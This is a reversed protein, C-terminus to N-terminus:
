GFVPSLESWIARPTYDGNVLVPDRRADAIYLCGRKYMIPVDTWRFDTERELKDLLAFRGLKQIAKHGFAAHAYKQVCNRECSIVRHYIVNELDEVPVNFVRADFVALRGETDLMQNFKWTAMAAVVSVIKQVKGGFWPETGPNTESWGKLILTIEDSAVYAAECGQVQQLLFRATQMMAVAFDMDFPQDLAMRKTLTSFSKGDLRIVIPQNTDLIQSTTTEYAKMRKDFKTEM